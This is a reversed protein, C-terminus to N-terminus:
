TQSGESFDPLFGPAPGIVEQLFGEESPQITRAVSLSADMGLIFGFWGAVAIAAALSAWGTVGRLPSAGFVQRRFPIIEAIGPAPEVLARARAVVAAPIVTTETAAARAAAIDGAAVPDAGILEAIRDREDEELLGDAFAALDLFREAEDEILDLAQSKRWIERDDHAPTSGQRDGDESM